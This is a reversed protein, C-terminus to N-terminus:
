NNINRWICFAFHLFSCPRMVVTLYRQFRCHFSSNKFDNIFQLVRNLIESIRTGSRHQRSVNFYLTQIQRSLKDAAVALCSSVHDRPRFQFILRAAANQVRQLLANTSDPLGVLVSYCYDLRTTVLALVLRTTIEPGALRRLQRLRRLHHFYVVATKVVDPKLSLESDLLVGLDRVM